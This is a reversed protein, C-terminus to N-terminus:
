GAAQMAVKLRQVSPLFVSTPLLATANPSYEVSFGELARGVRVLDLVVRENVVAGSKTRLTIALTLGAEGDVPLSLTAPSVAISTSALLSATKPDKKKLKALSRDGVDHFCNGFGPSSVAKLTREAAAQTTLVMTDNNVIIGAQAFDPSQADASKPAKGDLIQVFPGLRRCSPISKVESASGHSSSHATQTWGAGLDSAVILGAQAAATDASSVSAGGTTATGLVLAVSALLSVTVAALGRCPAFFRHARM